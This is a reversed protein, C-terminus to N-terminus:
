SRSAVVHVIESNPQVFPKVQTRHLTRQEYAYALSVLQEESWYDGMFSLGFPINPGSAVLNGFGNMTVNWDYPYYGMPVSVVPSGVLAPIIPSIQTPLLVASTNSRKLAGLIGGEGAVYLNTQYADWFRPDTNNWTQNFLAEEWVDTDREPWDEIAGNEHTWNRVDSLSEVSNPNYSLESLYNALGSIFDANLM